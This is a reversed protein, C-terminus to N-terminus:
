KILIYIVLKTTRKKYQLATIYSNIEKNFESLHGYVSTYGNPHTIYIAKGYGYQQVKIRSV